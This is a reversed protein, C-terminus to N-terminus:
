KKPKKMVFFNSRLKRVVKDGEKVIPVFDGKSIIVWLDYNIDEIFVQIFMKWHPFNSGCLLLPKTFSQRQDIKANGFSAM